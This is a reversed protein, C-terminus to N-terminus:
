PKVSVLDLMRAMYNKRNSEAPLNQYINLADGFKRNLLYSEFKEVDKIYTITNISLDNRYPDGNWVKDLDIGQIKIPETFCRCRIHVPPRKIGLEFDKGLVATKGDLPRCIPCVREDFSTVWRIEEVGAKQFTKYEAYNISENSENTAILVARDTPDTNLVEKNYEEFSVGTKYKRAAYDLTTNNFSAEVFLLRRVLEEIIVPDRLIFNLDTNLMGLSMKGGENFSVWLLLGFLEKTKQSFGSIFPLLAETSLKDAKKINVLRNYAEESALNILINNLDSKISNLFLSYIPNDEINDLAINNKLSTLAKNIIHIHNCIESQKLHKM